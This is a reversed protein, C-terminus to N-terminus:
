LLVLVSGATALATAAAKRLTFPERLFIWALILVFITSTQNLIAASNVSTLKFAAAWIIMALFNGLFTGPLASKLNDRDLISRLMAARQPNAAVLLALLPLAALMRVEMVWFVSAKDLVPKMLIIGMAMSLMSGAGYLLGLAMGRAPLGTGATKLSALVVASIVLVAGGLQRADVGQDLILLSLGIVLPSYLCAVIATIGAGVINLCKFYLTDAMVIGLVGSALALLLDGATVGAPRFTGDVFAILPALLVISVVTKLLNLPVPRVKEGAKRFYIVAMAWLLACLLAFSKGLLDMPM